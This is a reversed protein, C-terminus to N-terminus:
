PDIIAHIIEMYIEAVLGLVNLCKRLAILALMALRQSFLQSLAASVHYIYYLPYATHYITYPTHHITHAMALKCIGRYLLPVVSMYRKQLASSISRYYNEMKGNFRRTQKCEKSSRLPARKKRERERPMQRTVREM